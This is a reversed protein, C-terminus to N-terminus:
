YEDRDFGVLTEKNQCGHRHLFEFCSNMCPDFVHKSVGTVNM